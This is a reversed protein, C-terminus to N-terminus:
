VSIVDVALPIYLWFSLYTEQPLYAWPSPTLVPNKFGM